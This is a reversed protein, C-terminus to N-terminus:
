NARTYLFTLATRAHPHTSSAAPQEAFPAFTSGDIFPFGTQPSPM